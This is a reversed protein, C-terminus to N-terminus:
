AYVWGGCWKHHASVLRWNGEHNVADYIILRGRRLILRSFGGSYEVRCKELFFRAEDFSVFSWKKKTAISNMGQLEFQTVVVSFNLPLISAITALKVAVETIFIREDVDQLSAAFRSLNKAQEYRMQMLKGAIDSKAKPRVQTAKKGRVPPQLPKVDPSSSDTGAGDQVGESALWQAVQFIDVCRQGGLTKVAFPLNGRAILHSVAKESRGLVEALDRVYLVFQRPYQAQLHQLVQSYSM